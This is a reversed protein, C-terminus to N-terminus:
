GGGLVHLAQLPLTLWWSWSAAMAHGTLPVAVATSVAGLWALPQGLRPNRRILVFGVGAVVACTVQVLWRTGWSTDAVMLRVDAMSVPDGPFVFALVQGYLRGSAGLLFLLSGIFGLRVAMSGCRARVQDLSSEPQRFARSAIPGFAVAGLMLFVAIYTLWRGATGADIWSVDEEDQWGPEGGSEHLLGFTPSALGVSSQTASADDGGFLLAGAVVALAIRSRCAAWRYRPSGGRSARITM